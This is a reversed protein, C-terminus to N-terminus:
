PQRVEESELQASFFTRMHGAFMDLWTVVYGKYWLDLPFPAAPRRSCSIRTQRWRNPHPQTRSHMQAFAGYPQLLHGFRENLRRLILFGRLWPITADPQFTFREWYEEIRESLGKFFVTAAVAVLPSIACGFPRIASLPGPAYSSHSTSSASRASRPRKKM